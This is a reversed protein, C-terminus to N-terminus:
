QRKLMEVEIRLELEDRHPGVLTTGRRREDARAAALVDNPNKNGANRTEILLSSVRLTQELDDDGGPVQFTLTDFSLAPSATLVLATLALSVALSPVTVSLLRTPSSNRTM